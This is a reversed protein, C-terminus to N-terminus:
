EEAISVAEELLSTNQRMSLPNTSSTFSRNSSLSSLNLSSMNESLNDVSGPRERLLGIFQSVPGGSSNKATTTPRQGQLDQLIHAAVKKLSNESSSLSPAITPDHTVLFGSQIINELETSAFDSVGFATPHNKPEALPVDPLVIDLEDQVFDTVLDHVSKRFGTEKKSQHLLDIRDIISSLFHCRLVDDPQTSLGRAAVLAQQLMDLNGEASCKLFENIGTKPEQSKSFSMIASATVQVLEAASIGILKELEVAWSKPKEVKLVEQNWQRWVYCYIPLSEAWNLTEEDQCVTTWLQPLNTAKELQQICWALTKRIRRHLMIRFQLAFTGPHLSVLHEELRKIDKGFSTALFHESAFSLSYQSKNPGVLEEHHPSRFTLCRNLYLYTILDVHVDDVQSNNLIQEMDPLIKLIAHCQQQAAHIDGQLRCVQALLMQLMYRELKSTMAPGPDDKEALNQGLLNRVITLDPERAASRVCSIMASRAMWTPKSSNKLRKWLLIYLPFADELFTCSFMFDATQKIVNMESWSYREVLCGLDVILPLVAARKQESRIPPSSDQAKSSYTSGTRGTLHEDIDIGEVSTSSSLQTVQTFQPTTISGSKKGAPPISYFTSRPSISSLQSNGTSSYTTRTFLSGFDFVKRRKDSQEISKGDISPTRKTGYLQDTVQDQGDEECSLLDQHMEVHSAQVSIDKKIQHSSSLNEGQETPASPNCDFRGDMKCIGSKAYQDDICSYGTGPLTNQESHEQSYKLVKWQDHLRYQYQKISFVILVNRRSETTRYEGQKSVM